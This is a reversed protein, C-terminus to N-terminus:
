KNYAKEFIHYSWSLPRRAVQIPIIDEHAAIQLVSDASTYVILAGTKM